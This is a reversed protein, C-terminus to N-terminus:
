SMMPYRQAFHSPLCKKCLTGGRVRDRFFPARLNKRSELVYRTYIINELSEQKVLDYSM